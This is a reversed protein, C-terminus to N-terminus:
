FTQATNGCFTLCLWNGHLNRFGDRDTFQRGTQFCCNSFNDFFQHCITNKSGDIILNIKVRSGQHSHLKVGFHFFFDLDGNFFLNNVVTIVFLFVQDRTRRNDHDHTMNVMTFGTQQISNTMGIDCFTFGAANRLMNTGILHIHVSSHNGKQIRGAMLSKRCHTGATGHCCIDRNQDNSRIITDHRLRNLCDMMCFCCLDADNNCNVFHILGTRIRLVNHFFQCFVINHRLFPAAIDGTDTNRCLLLGPDFIQQFHNQQNGIHFFQFCIRITCGLSNDNLSAKVFAATWNGGHQHLITSQM